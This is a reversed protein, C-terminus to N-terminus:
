HKRLLNLTHQWLIELEL